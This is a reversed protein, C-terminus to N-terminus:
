PNQQSKPSPCRHRMQLHQQEDQNLRHLTSRFHLRTSNSHLVSIGHTHLKINSNMKNGNKLRSSNAHRQHRCWPLSTCALVPLFLPKTCDASPRTRMGFRWTDKVKFGGDRRDESLSPERLHRCLVDPSARPRGHRDAVRGEILMMCMAIWFLVQRKVAVFVIDITEAIM